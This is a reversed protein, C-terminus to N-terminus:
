ITPPLRPAKAPTPPENNPEIGLREEYRAIKEKLRYVEGIKLALTDKAKDTEKKYEKEKKVLDMKHSLDLDKINKGTLDKILIYIAPLMSPLFAQWFYERPVIFMLQLAPMGVALLFTVISALIGKWDGKQIYGVDQDLCTSLQRDENLKGLNNAMAKISSSMVDVKKDINSIVDKIEAIEKNNKVINIELRETKTLNKPVEDSM